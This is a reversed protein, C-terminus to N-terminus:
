DSSKFLQAKFNFYWINLNVILVPFTVRLVSTLLVEKKRERASGSGATCGPLRLWSGADCGDPTPM